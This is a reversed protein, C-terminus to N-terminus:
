KNETQNDRVAELQKIQDKVQAATKERDIKAATEADKRDQDRSFQEDRRRHEAKTLFEKREEKKQAEFELVRIKAMKEPDPQSQGDEGQERRRQIEKALAEAVAKVEQLGDLFNKMAELYKPYFRGLFIHDKMKELHRESHSLCNIGFNYAEMPDLTQERVMEFVRTLKSFHIDLHTVPSDISRYVVEQTRWFMDNEIAAVREDHFSSQQEFLPPKLLNVESRSHGLSLLLMRELRRLEFPTEAIQMSLRIAETDRVVREMVTSSIADVIANIEKNKENDSKGQLLDRLSWRLESYFFDRVKKAPTNDRPKIKTLRKIQVLHMQAWDGFKINLKANVSKAADSGVSQVEDTTPRSSLRGIVKSDFQLTDRLYNQEHLQLSLIHPQLDTRPQNPAFQYGPPMLNFGAHVGMKFREATQSSPMAVTPSGALLMKDALSNREKNYLISNEVAFKAIGRYEQIYSDPSIGSDRIISIKDSPKINGWSRQYLLHETVGPTDDKSATVSRGTSTAPSVATEQAPQYVAYTETYTNDLERNWIKAIRVNDTNCIVASKNKSYEGFVEEWSSVRRETRDKSDSILGQYNRWLVDEIGELIWHSRFSQREGSEGVDTRDNSANRIREWVRWLKDAKITDFIMWTKIDDVRSKDEYAICLPHLPMGLYDSDGECAVSCSGYSYSNYEIKNAHDSFRPDGEFSDIYVAAVHEGVFNRLLEDELFQLVPVESDKKRPRRFKVGFMANSRMVEGVNESTGQEIKARAKGFNFNSSWGLNNAKLLKPDKPKKGGIHEESNRIVKWYKSHSTIASAMIRYAVSASNILRDVPFNIKRLDVKPTNLDSM